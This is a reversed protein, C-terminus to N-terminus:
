RSREFLWRPFYGFLLIFLFGSGIVIFGFKLIFLTIEIIKNWGLNLNSKDVFFLFFVLLGFPIVLLAVLADWVDFIRQMFARGTYVLHQNMVAGNKIRAEGSILSADKLNNTIVKVSFSEGKNILPVNITVNSEGVLIDIKMNIPDKEIIKSDLIKATGFRIVLPSLFDEKSIAKSNNSITVETIDLKHIPGKGWHVTLMDKVQKKSESELDILNLSVANVNLRLKQSQRWYIWFMGLISFLGVVWGLVPNFDM